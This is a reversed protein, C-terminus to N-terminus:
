PVEDFERTTFLLVLKAVKALLTVTSPPVKCNPLSTVKNLSPVLISLVSSAKCALPWICTPPTDPPPDIYLLASM